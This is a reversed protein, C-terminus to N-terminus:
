RWTPIRWAAEWGVALDLKSRGHERPLPVIPVESVRAGARVARALAEVQVAYGRSVLTHPAVWELTSRRWARMGSTPDAVPLDLWARTWWGAARSLVRRTSPWGPVSTRMGRTGVALDAGDAIAAGLRPLVSPAHTGDGDLQYVVDADHGLARVYAERYAAGLGRVGHRVLVDAGAERAEDATGDDSADDVVWVTAGPLASRVGRVIMGINGAERYTPVLVLSSPASRV